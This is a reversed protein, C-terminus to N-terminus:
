GGFFPTRWGAVLTRVRWVTGTATLFLSRWDEGWALNAVTEDSALRGLAEGDPAIVTVGGPGTCWVNGEADLKLGDPVGAGYDPPGPWAFFVEGGSLAGDAAVDFRRVHMATTDSVYLVREDPSFALGNPTPLDDAELHLVGAADLRYVGCFALERDREVGHVPGRGYPPDSFYVQGDSRLVVDNPSNLERGDWHSALVTRTGDHELRALTSTSHECVVQRGAGDLTTGNTRNSPRLREEVGGGRTWRRRVDGELDSWWLAEEAPVWLPGETFLCGTAIAEVGADAAVLRGMRETWAEVRIM